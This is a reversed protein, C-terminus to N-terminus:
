VKMDLYYTPNDNVVIQDIVKLEHDYLYDIEKVVYGIQSIKKILVEERSKFLSLDEKNINIKININNKYLKCSIKIKGLVKTDLDIFVNTKDSRTKKNKRKLFSLVGELNEPQYDIPMFMFSLDKNLEKLFDIKDKFINVEEKSGYNKLTKIETLIKELENYKNIELIKNKSLDEVLLKEKNIFDKKGINIKIFEKFNEKISILEKLFVDPKNSLKNINEINNLSPKINNKIIFGIIKPLEEAEINENGFLLEEVMPRLNNNEMYHSKDVVLLHKIHSKHPLSEESKHSDMININEHDIKNEKTTVDISNEKQINQGNLNIDKSDKGQFFVVKENENLDILEILKDLIKVSETLNEESLQVNNEMLSKALQTLLKSDKVKINNKPFLKLYLEENGKNPDLEKLDDTVIPKIEIKEGNSSTVLFTMEDNAEMPIETNVTAKILGLGKIELVVEDMYTELIEAKFISGKTLINKDLSLPNNFLYNNIKM